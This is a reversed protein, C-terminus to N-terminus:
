INKFVFNILDICDTIIELQGISPLYGNHGNINLDICYEIAPVNENNKCNM